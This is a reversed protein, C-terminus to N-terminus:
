LVREHIHAHYKLTSYWHLVFGMYIALLVQGKSWFRLLLNLRWWAMSLFVLGPKANERVLTQRESLQFFTIAAKNHIQGRGYSNNVVFIPTSFPTPVCVLDGVLVNRNNELQPPFFFFIQWQNDLESVYHWMTWGGKQWLNLQFDGQTGSSLVTM